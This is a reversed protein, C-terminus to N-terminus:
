VDRKNKYIEKVIKMMTRRSIGGQKCEKVIWGLLDITTPEKKFLEFEQETM